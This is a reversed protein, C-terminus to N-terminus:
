FKLIKILYQHLRMFFMNWGKKREIKEDTCSKEEICGRKGNKRDCEGEM